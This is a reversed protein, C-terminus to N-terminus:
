NQISFSGKVHDPFSYASGSITIRGNWNGCIGDYVQWHNGRDMHFKEGDITGFLEEGSDYFGSWNIGNVSKITIRDPGWSGNSEWITTQLINAGPYILKECLLKIRSDKKPAKSLCIKYGERIAYIEPTMPPDIDQEICYKKVKSFVYDHLEGVSINGDRDCDAAGDQLGELVYHTYIGFGSEKHEFSYQTSTSSALVARGKGGLQTEINVTGDSRANMGKAFAGSFCCDLIVVQQESLSQTMKEQLYRASVATYDKVKNGDKITCRNALYFQGQKDTIGHGAFYFLVLDDQKRNVFLEYISEEIENRDPNELLKINDELFDGINPDQLIKKIGRVDRVAGPLPKLTPENYETVGVLLAYKGM